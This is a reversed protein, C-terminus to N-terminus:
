DLSLKCLQYTTFYTTETKHHSPIPTAEHNNGRGNTIIWKTNNIEKWRNFEIQTREDALYKKIEPMLRKAFANIQKRSPNFNVSNVKPTAQSAISSKMM